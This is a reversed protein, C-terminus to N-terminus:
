TDEKRDTWHDWKQIIEYLASGPSLTSMFQRHGYLAYDAKLKKLKVGEVIMKQVAVLQRRPPKITNFTGVFAFCVSDMNFGKTHAGEIDWGRGVYISGDGGVLFNYGIDGWGRSEVHFTQIQRM